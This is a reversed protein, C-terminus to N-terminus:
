LRFDQVDHDQATLSYLAMAAVHQNNFFAHTEALAALPEDVDATSRGYVRLCISTLSLAMGAPEALQYRTLFDISKQVSPHERRDQLALLALATTPIHASLEKGLMNSNGYNWGGTTCVRDLLMREAEEIRASKERVALLAPSKKVALLGWCTPEIWSFTGELWSWGQLTNDQRNPSKEATMGKARGVAQLLRRTPEVPLIGASGAAIAALGNFGVNPSRGTVDDLFGDPRQRATFWNSIGNALDKKSDAARLLYLAIWCTPEIRSAKGPYYGWGGDANRGRCLLDALESTKTTIM